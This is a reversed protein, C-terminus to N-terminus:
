VNNVELKEFNSGNKVLFNTNQNSFTRIHFFTLSCAFDLMNGNKM